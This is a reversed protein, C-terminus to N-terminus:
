KPMEVWDAGCVNVLSPAVCSDHPAMEFLFGVPGKPKDGRRGNMATRGEFEGVAIMMFATFVGRKKDYRAKGLLKM